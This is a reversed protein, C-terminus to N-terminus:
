YASYVPTNKRISAKPHRSASSPFATMVRDEISNLIHKRMANQKYVAPDQGNCISTIYVVAFLGCDHSGEQMQVDVVEVSFQNEQAQLLASILKLTSKPLEKGGNCDFIKICAKQCGVTSLAIWHNKNVNIIQVFQEQPTITSLNQSLAPPQFDDISPHQQKLMYQVATIILDDLWSKPSALIARHYITLKVTCITLWTDEDDEDDESLEVSRACPNQTIEMLALIDQTVFILAPRNKRKAAATSLM